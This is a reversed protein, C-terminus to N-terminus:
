VFDRAPRRRSLTYLNLCGRGMPLLMYIKFLQCQPTVLRVSVHGLYHTIIIIAFTSVLTFSVQFQCSCSFTNNNYDCFDLRFLVAKQSLSFISLQVAVSYYGGCSDEQPPNKQGSRCRQALFPMPIKANLSPIRKKPKNASPYFNGSFCVVQGERRQHFTPVSFHEFNEALQGKGTWISWHSFSESLLMRKENLCHSKRWHTTSSLPNVNKGHLHPLSIKRFASWKPM